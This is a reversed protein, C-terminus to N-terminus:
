EFHFDTLVFVGLKAVDEAVRGHPRGLFRGDLAVGRVLHFPRESREGIALSFHEPQTVAEAGIALVRELLDATVQGDGAFPDPLNFAACQLLQPGGTFAAGGAVGFTGIGRM